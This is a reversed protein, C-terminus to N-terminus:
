TGIVIQLVRLCHRLLGDSITIGIVIVSIAVVAPKAYFLSASCVSSVSNANIISISDSIVGFWGFM